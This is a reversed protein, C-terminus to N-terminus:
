TQGPMAPVTAIVKTGSSSSRIKLFVGLNALRERMGRLGVGAALNASLHSAEEAWTDEVTLESPNFLSHGVGGPHLRNCPLV